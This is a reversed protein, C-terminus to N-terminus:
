GQRLVRLLVVLTVIWFVNAGVAAAPVLWELRGGLAFLVPFLYWDRTTLPALVQDILRNEWCAVQRRRTELVECATIVAFAGVVGVGLAGLTPWAVVTGTTALRRVIGSLVALHVFTDGTLDLIHGRSSEQFRLRALEGDSCDLVASLVLAAVGALVCSSAPSGLAIGGGVGLAIAALTVANPRLPTRLLLRTLAASLRRALVRDIWGDRPNRLGRLLARELEADSRTAPELVGVQPPASPAAPEALRDGPAIRLCAGDRAVESVMGPRAQRVLERVLTQDFVTGPGVVVHLAESAVSAASAARVVPVRLRPDAPPDAGVITCQEIGSRQLTLLTRLLLPVGAVSRTRDGAGALVVARRVGEEPRGSGRSM